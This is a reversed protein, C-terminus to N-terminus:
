PLGQCVERGRLSFGPEEGLDVAQGVEFYGAEVAAGLLSGAGAEGAGLDAEGDSHAGPASLWRGGLGWFGTRYAERRYRTRAASPARRSLTHPNVGETPEFGVAVARDLSRHGRFAHVLDRAMINPPRGGFGGIGPKARRKTRPEERQPGPHPLM